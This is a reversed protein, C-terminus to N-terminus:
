KVLGRKRGYEACLGSVALVGLFLFIMITIGM